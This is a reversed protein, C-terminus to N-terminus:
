PRNVVAEYRVSQVGRDVSSVFLVVDRVHPQRFTRVGQSRPRGVPATFVLSFRREDAARRIPALDNIEALVVDFSDGDGSMSFTTGLLPTYFSRASTPSPATPSPAAEAAQTIAAPSAAIVAVAAGGRLFARRSFSARDGM